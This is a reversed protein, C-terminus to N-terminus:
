HVPYLGMHIYTEHGTHDRHDWLKVLGVAAEECADCLWQLRYGERIVAIAIM